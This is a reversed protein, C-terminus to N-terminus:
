DQCARRDEEVEEAKGMRSQVGPERDIVQGINLEKVSGALTGEAM